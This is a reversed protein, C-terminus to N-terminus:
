ASKEVLLIFGQWTQQFDGPSIVTDGTKENTLVVGADNVEKVVTFHDGQVFVIAPKGLKRLDAFALRMGTAKLGKARAAQALGLMSTIGQADACALGAIETEALPVGLLRGMTVLAAPGCGSGGAASSVQKPRVARLDEAKKRSEILAIQKRAYSAEKSEPYTEITKEYEKRAQELDGKRLYCQAVWYQGNSAWKTTPYNAAVKAYERIADDYLGRVVYTWGIAGQVDAAREPDAGLAIMKRYVAEANEYQKVGQYKDGVHALTRPLYPNARFQAILADLAEQIATQNGAEILSAIHTEAIWMEASAAQDTDPWHDVVGQWLQCAHNYEPMQRFSEALQMAQELVRQTKPLKTLLGEIAAETAPEDGLTDWSVILFKQSLLARNGTPYKDVVYTYLACAERYKKANRYENATTYVAEALDKHGAFRALLQATAAQANADDGQALYSWIMNRQSLITQERSPWHDVVYQYLRIAGDYKHVERYGDGTTFVVDPLYKDQAFDTLLTETAAQAKAEEGLALYSLIVGRQSFIAREKTRWHDVVYQYLGLAKDPQQLRRYAWAVQGFAEAVREDAAHQAAINQLAANVAPDNGLHIQAIALGMKLWIAQPQDPQAMLLNQYVQSAQSIRNLLKAQDLVEHVALPLRRLRILPHQAYDTLLQQVTAQAQPLQDTALYTAALKPRAKFVAEAEAAKNPDAQQLVTQYAQEAQAWQGAKYFGEAAKLDAAVDARASPVTLLVIVSLGLLYTVTIRRM